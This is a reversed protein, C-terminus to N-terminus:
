GRADQEDNGGLNKVNKWKERTCIESLHEQLNFPCWEGSPYVRWAINGVFQVSQGRKGWLREWWNPMMEM